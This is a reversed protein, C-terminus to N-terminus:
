LAEDLSHIYSERGAKAQAYETKIRWDVPEGCRACIFPRMGKRIKVLRDLTAAPFLERLRVFLDIEELVPRAAAAHMSEGPFWKMWREAFVAETMVWGVSGNPEELRLRLGTRPDDHSACPTLVGKDWRCGCQPCYSQDAMRRTENKGRGSVIVWSMVNATCDGCTCAQRTDYEELRDLANIAPLAIV